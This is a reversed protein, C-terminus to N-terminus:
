WKYVGASMKRVDPCTDTIVHCAIVDQSFISRCLMDNWESFYFRTFNSNWCHQPLSHVIYLTACDSKNILSFIVALAWLPQWVHNQLVWLPSSLVPTSERLNRTNHLNQRRCCYNESRSRRCLGYANRVSFMKHAELLFLGTFQPGILSFALSYTRLRRDMTHSIHCELLAPGYQAEM